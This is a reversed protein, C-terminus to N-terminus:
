IEIKFIIFSRPLYCWYKFLAKALTRIYIWISTTNRLQNYIIPIGVRTRWGLLQALRTNKVLKMALQVNVLLIGHVPWPELRLRQRSPIDSSRGPFPLLHNRNSLHLCRGQCLPEIFCRRSPDWFLNFNGSWHCFVDNRSQRHSAILSLLRLLLRMLLFCKNNIKINNDNIIIIIIITIINNNIAIM